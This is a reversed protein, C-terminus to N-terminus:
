FIIQSDYLYVVKDKLVFLYSKNLSFFDLGEVLAVEVSQGNSMDLRYIREDKAYYVHGGLVEVQHHEGLSVVKELGAFEDLRLIRDTGVLYIKNSYYVLESFFESSNRDNLITSQRMIKNERYNWLVLRQLAQDYGWIYNNDVLATLTPSFDSNSNLDIPDQIPNLQNDLILLNFFGSTLTLQLMNQTNLNELINRNSFRKIERTKFDIKNLETSNKIFYINNFDDTGFDTIQGDTELRISDVTVLEQALGFDLVVVCILIRLFSKM